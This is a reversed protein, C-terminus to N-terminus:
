YDSPVCEDEEDVCPCGDWGEDEDWHLWAGWNSRILVHNCSECVPRVKRRTPSEFDGALWHDHEAEAARLESEHVYPFSM